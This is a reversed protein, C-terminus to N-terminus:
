HHDEPTTVPNEIDAVAKLRKKAKGNDISVVPAADDEVGAISLQRENGTMARVGCIEGNDIRRFSVENTQFNAIEVCEVKEELEGTLLADSKREWAAREAKKKATLDKALEKLENELDRYRRTHGVIELALEAKRAEDIKTKVDKTIVLGTDMSM